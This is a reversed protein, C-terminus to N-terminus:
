NTYTLRLLSALNDKFILLLYVVMLDSSVPQRVIGSLGDSSKRMDTSGQYVFIRAATSLGLM